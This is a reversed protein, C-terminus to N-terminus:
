LAHSFALTPPGGKRHCFLAGMRCSSLSHISIVRLQQPDPTPVLSIAARLRDPFELKQSYRGVQQIPSEQFGM